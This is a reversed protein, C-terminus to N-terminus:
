KKIAWNVIDLAVEEKSKLPFSQVAAATVFSVKNTPSNFGAGKDKLSNLVIMDANKSLVKKKANALENDTELAFGILMQGKKKSKGLTQLIDPTKEFEISFKGSDKKIKSAAAKVPKYDAVAAALVAIDASKWAKVANEYMLDANPTKIVKVNGNLPCVDAKALLLTVEAGKRAFADAISVGMKGTSHNTICRVPDINEVTGGATVLVKKGIFSADEEFASIVAELLTEPEPMRGQGYAGCALFGYEPDLVKVGRKVLLTLNDQMVPNEFMNVNMAPAVLLKKRFTLLTTSLADDAIGHAMKGIINATAPAVIFLDGWDAHSIHETTVIRAAFTDHYVNNQSLSEITLPTVFHLANDTCVVRVQAGESVLMRILSLTKYAAIVGSIGVIIKKGQLIM